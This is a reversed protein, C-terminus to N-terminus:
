SHRRATRTGFGRQLDLTQRLAQLVERPSPVRPRLARRDMADLTNRILLAFETDGSMLLRRSFFLTDADESGNVLAWYATSDAAITVDPASGGSAAIGQDHLRFALALGLDTVEVRISKNRATDLASSNLVERLMVNLVLGLAASPPFQPLKAILERVAVPLAPIRSYLGPQQSCDAPSHAQARM